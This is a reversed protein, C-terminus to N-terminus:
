SQMASNEAAMVGTKLTVDYKFPYNVWFNFTINIQKGRPCGSTPSKTEETSCLCLNKVWVMATQWVYLPLWDSGHTCECCGTHSAAIHEPMTSYHAEACADVIGSCMSADRVLQQSRAWSLQVNRHILPLFFSIYISNLEQVSRKTDYSGWHITM